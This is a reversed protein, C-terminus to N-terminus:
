HPKVSVLTMGDMHQILEYIPVETVIGSNHPNMIGVLGKESDYSSISYTHDAFLKYAESVYKEDHNHKNNLTFYLMSDNNNSNNCILRFYTDKHLLDDGDYVGLIAKPLLEKVAESPNGYCLRNLQEDADVINSIDEVPFNSYGYERHISYAQEIIQIGFPGDVVSDAILPEANVFKIEKEANPFMIFVDKGDQRFLEYLKPRTLSNDMMKGLVAILWCDGLTGQLFNFRMVSPFLDIFKEKTMNLEVLNNDDNVYLKSDLECVDGKPIMKIAKKHSTGTPLTTVEPRGQIIHKRIDNIVNDSLMSHKTFGAFVLGADSIRDDLAVELIKEAKRTDNSMAEYLARKVDKQYHGLNFLEKGLNCFYRSNYEISPKQKSSVSHRGVLVQVIDFTTLKENKLLGNLKEFDEDTKIYRVIDSMGLSGFRDDGEPTKASVLKDIIKTVLGNTDKDKQKFEKLVDFAGIITDYEKRQDLFKNLIKSQKVTKTARALEFVAEGEYLSAGGKTNISVMKLLADINNKNVEKKILEILDDNCTWEGAKNALNYLKRTFINLLGEPAVGLQGFSPHFYQPFIQKLSLPEKPKISTSGPFSGHKYNKLYQNSQLLSWSILNVKMTINFM